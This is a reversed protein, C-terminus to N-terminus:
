SAGRVTGTDGQTYHAETEPRPGIGRGANHFGGDISVGSNAILAGSDPPTSNTGEARGRLRGQSVGPAAQPRKLATGSQILRNM